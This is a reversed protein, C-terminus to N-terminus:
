YHVNKSVESNQWSGIQILSFRYRSIGIALSWDSIQPLPKPYLTVKQSCLDKKQCTIMKESKLRKKKKFEMSVM